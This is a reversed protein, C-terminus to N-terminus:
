FSETDLRQVKQDSFDTNMQPRSKPILRPNPYVRIQFLLSMLLILWLHVGIKCPNLLTLGNLKQDSFDTNM